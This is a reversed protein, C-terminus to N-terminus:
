LRTQIPGLLEKVERDPIEDLGTSRIEGLDTSATIKYRGSYVYAPGDVGLVLITEGIRDGVMRVADELPHHVLMQELARAIYYSDCYGSPSAPAERWTGNHALAAVMEGDGENAYVPFPHANKTTISGRTAFRTHALAVEPTEDEPVDQLEAPMPVEGEPPVMGIGHQLTLGDPTPVAFGWSHGGSVQENSRINELARELANEGRVATMWCM